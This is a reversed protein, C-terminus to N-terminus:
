DAALAIPANARRVFEDAWAEIDWTRWDALQRQTLNLTTAALEGACEPHPHGLGIHIIETLVGRAQLAAGLEYKGARIIYALNAADEADVEYGASCLHQIM